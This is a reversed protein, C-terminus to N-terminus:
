GEFGVLLGGREAYYWCLATCENIEIDTGRFSELIMDKLKLASSENMCHSIRVKGGKFDMKKMEVLIGELTKHIGRCKQVPQLTGEESATGIVRVGLVGAIAATAVGIRGNRVLNNLSRLSFLLHTKSMYGAIREKMEEFSLNQNIYDRLKEIILQMEPGASLTDIVCVKANPHEMEYLEKAQLAASCSGSLSSTIAVAFICDAGDFAGLWDNVNPCSTSSKEKSQEMEEIMKPLDLHIDDVYEKNGAIIKLPVSEYEIGEVKLLNSASDSVIKCKM